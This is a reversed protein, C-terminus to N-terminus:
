PAAPRGADDARAGARRSCSHGAGRPGYCGNATAARVAAFLGPWAMRQPRPVDGARCSRALRKGRCSRALRKRRNGREQKQPRIATRPPAPPTREVWCPPFSCSLSACTRVHMCRRRPIVSMRRTSLWPVISRRRASASCVHEHSKAPAGPAFAAYARMRSEAHEICVRSQTSLAMRFSGKADLRILFTLILGIRIAQWCFRFTLNIEVCILKM